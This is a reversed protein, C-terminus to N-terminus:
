GGRAPRRVPRRQGPGGGEAMDPHRIQDRVRQQRQQGRVRDRGGGGARHQDHQQHSLALGSPTPRGCRTCRRAGAAYVMGDAAIFGYVTGGFPAYKWRLSGTTSFAYLNGVGGLVYVTGGALVPGATVGGVDYHWRPHGTAADRAYFLGDAAGTYVVGGAVAPTAVKDKGLSVRWLKSASRVVPPATSRGAKTGAPSPTGTSGTRPAASTGGGQGLEWAGVGAGVAVLGALALLM